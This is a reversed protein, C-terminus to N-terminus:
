VRVFHFPGKYSPNKKEYFVSFCKLCQTYPKYVVGLGIGLSNVGKYIKKTEGCKPCKFEKNSM